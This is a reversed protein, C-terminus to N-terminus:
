TQGPRAWATRRFRNEILTFSYHGTVGVLPLVMLVAVIFHAPTPQLLDLRAMIENTLLICPLHCLYISYSREGIWFLPKSLMSPFLACEGLTSLLALAGGVGIVGIVADKSFYRPALLCVALGALLLIKRVCTRSIVELRGGDSAWAILAGLSFGLSRTAWSLSFIRYTLLLSIISLIFLLLVAKKNGFICMFISLVAYLQWELSLSWTVGNFSGSGCSGSALQLCHWWYFNSVGLVGFIASEVTKIPDNDPITTAIVSLVVSVVMWFLLAPVLRRGRRDWFEVFAKWMTASRHLNESFTKFILYGSIAFFIDVSAWFQVVNFMEQYLEPTPVRAKYHQLIVMLVAIGRLCQIDINKVM